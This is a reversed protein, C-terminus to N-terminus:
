GTSDPAASIPHDNIKTAHDAAALMAADGQSDGYAWLEADDLGSEALWRRLRRMKEDGRCNVGELAGTYRGDLGVTAETCLVADVGFVEGLPRLYAGFSASVLVVRHGEDQHWRLRRPTDARLWREQITKAFSSGIREVAEAERGTFVARVASAKFRDRDRRLTADFLSVPHRLLAGILGARGAVAALFPVVTDRTTLTGDFDFAAVTTM